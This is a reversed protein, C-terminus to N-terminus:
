KIKKIKLYIEEYKDSPIDNITTYGEEQIVSFKIIDDGIMKALTEIQENNIKEVVEIDEVINFENSTDWDMKEQVASYDKLLDYPIEIFPKLTNAMEWAVTKYIMKATDAKWINKENTPSANFARLIRDKDIVVTQITGDKFYAVAYAKDVNDWNKFSLDRNGEYDHKLIITTGTNFDTSIKFDEGKLVIGKLLPKILGGGLTCWRSIIREKAQYQQKIFIDYKGSKSNKRIDLYIEQESLNLGLRAYRKIEQPLNCSSFDVDNWGISRETLKKHTNTIIDIAFSREKPTLETNEQIAISEIQAMMNSTVKEVLTLQKEEKKTEEEKM